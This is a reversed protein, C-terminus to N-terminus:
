FMSPDHWQLSQRTEIGEFGVSSYIKKAPNDKETEIVLVELGMSEFAYKLAAYMLSSCVGQRRYDIHTGVTNFRGLKGERYIGLEGVWIGELRMGFRLGLGAEVMARLDQYQQKLFGKQAETGGYNWSPEFHVNLYADENDSASLVAFQLQSNLKPPRKLRRCGMVQTEILEFGQNRFDDIGVPNPEQNEWTIAVFGREKPSGIEQSFREIWLAYDGAKPSERM